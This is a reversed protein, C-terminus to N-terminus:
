NEIGGGGKKINRNMFFEYIIRFLLYTWAIINLISIVDLWYLGIFNLKEVSQFEFKVLLDTMFEITIILLCCLDFYKLM